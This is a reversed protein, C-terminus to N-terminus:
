EAKIFKRLNEETIVWKGGIKQAKLKEDKIYNLLTRETVNLIKGVQKISYVKIDLM